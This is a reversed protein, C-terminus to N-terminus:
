VTTLEFVADDVVDRKPDVGLWSNWGLRPGEQATSDLRPEPIENAYLMPQVDFALSPGVYTRVLECIELLRKKTPMLDAFARYGVPGIKVRFKAQVNWSRAGAVADVGLQCYRGVSNNGPLQSQEEPEISLWSGTFQRVQVTLGLYESLLCELAIPCRPRHSFYGGFYVFTDDEVTLRKELHPTGMGLLARLSQTVRDCQGHKSEIRERNIPLRYKAWAQYFLSIARHNFLNLFQSLSFDRIRARQLILESYHDPLVGSPGTLGMFAVGMHETLDASDSDNNVQELSTIASTPFRLSPEVKFRVPERRDPETRSFLQSGATREFLRVAQFFSFLRPNARLREMLATHSRGIETAMQM